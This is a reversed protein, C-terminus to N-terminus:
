SAAAKEVGLEGARTTVMALIEKAHDDACKGQTVHEQVNDWFGLLEARTTAAPILDDVLHGMWDIDTEAGDPAKAAPRKGREPRSAHGNGNGSRPPAPTANGFAAGASQQRPRRAAQGAAATANERTPDARDGKAWLDLAVGFRMAANRLADGILVKVADNQSSPVSGYGLRTVGGATLKIWLGVPRDQSDTDFLPLGHEDTALPEWNWEPDAELLRSTVDAHGVYDLATGGRPLKGIQEPPFPRRLKEAVTATESM